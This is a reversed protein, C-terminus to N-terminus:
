IKYGAQKIANAMIKEMINKEEQTFDESWKKMKIVHKQKSIEILDQSVKIELFDCIKELEQIPNSLLDEYRLMYRLEPAHNKYTKMMTELKKVSKKATRELLSIQNNNIIAMDEADINIEDENKSESIKFNRPDQLILLIKSKPFIESIIDAAFIGNPEKIIIKKSFDSIQAYIRNLILKRVYLKWIEKYGNHFFYDFRNQHFEVSSTIDKAPIFNNLFLGIMPELVPTNKDFFNELISTSEISGFMWVINEELVIEQQHSLELPSDSVDKSNSKTVVTM